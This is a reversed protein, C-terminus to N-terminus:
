EIKTATQHEHIYEYIKNISRQIRQFHLIMDDNMEQSFKQELTSMSAHILMVPDLIPCFNYKKSKEKSDIVLM